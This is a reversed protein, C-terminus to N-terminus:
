RNRIDITATTRGWAGAPPPGAIGPYSTGSEVAAHVREFVLPSAFLDRITRGQKDKMAPPVTQDVLPKDTLYLIFHKEGSQEFELKTELIVEDNATLEWKRDVKLVFFTWPDIQVITLYGPKSIKFKLYLPDNVFATTLREGNATAFSALIEWEPNPPTSQLMLIQKLASVANATWDKPFINSNLNEFPNALATTTTEMQQQWQTMVEKSEIAPYGPLQKIFTDFASRSPWLAPNKAWQADSWRSFEAKMLETRRAKTEQDIPGGPGVLDTAEDLSREGAFKRARSKLEALDPWEAVHRSQYDVLWAPTATESKAPTITADKPPHMRIFDDVALRLLQQGESTSIKLPGNAVEFASRLAKPSSYQNPVERFREAFIEDVLHDNPLGIGLWNWRYAAMGVMATLLISIIALVAAIRYARSRGPSRNTGKNRTVGDGVYGPIDTALTEYDSGTLESKPHDDLNKFPELAKVVEGATNFRESPSKALMRSIVADLGAPIEPRLKRAKPIPDHHHAKMLAIFDDRVYPTQGTLLYFFTGGLAYIDSRGTANAANSWQEPPMFEPTGLGRNQLTLAANGSSETLRAIGMDLVYLRGEPRTIMLNSPKIDRHVVGRQHAYDLADAANSIWNVVKGLPLRQGQETLEDCHSKLDKGEVFKMAIFHVGEIVDMQYIPVICPHDLRGLVRAEREFRKALIDGTGDRQIITKIAEIRDLLVNKAKYVEGMGGAGLREMLLYNGFRIREDTGKKIQEVQYTSLHGTKFLESVLKASDIDDGLTERVRVLTESDVLSLKQLRLEMERVPDPIAIESSDFVRTAEESKNSSTNDSLM